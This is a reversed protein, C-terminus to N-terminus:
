QQAVSNIMFEWPAEPAIGPLPRRPSLLPGHRTMDPM